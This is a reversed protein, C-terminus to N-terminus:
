GMVKRAVLVVLYGAYILLLLVGEIRGLRNRFKLLPGLIIATAVMMGYDLVDVGESAFPALISSVGLIGLLNFINSGVINGIAIDAEGRRAAVVSTALEPLSTGVAVVTLAILEDPVGLERELTVAAALILKAGVVLAVLGIIAAFVARSLGMSVLDGDAAVSDERSMVIGVSTYVVLALVFVAGVVRGMGGAVLCIVATALSAVVMVPLDRSFVMRSVTVPAVLGTLGLILAINCINSGVVNGVCIDGFGHLSASTSVFLEPASTGFAVLTLGIILSSVKLRVALARGGRVLWEAGYYLLALGGLGAVVQILGKTM